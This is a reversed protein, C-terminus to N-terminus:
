RVLDIYQIPSLFEFEDRAWTLINKEFALAREPSNSNRATEFEQIKAVANKDGTRDLERLKHVFDYILAICTAVICLRFAGSKYCKVAESIYGRAEPSKCKLVLEEIDILEGM